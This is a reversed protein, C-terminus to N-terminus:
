VTAGRTVGSGGASVWSTVVESRGDGDVDVLVLEGPFATLELAQEAVPM